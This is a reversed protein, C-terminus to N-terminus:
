QTPLQIKAIEAQILKMRSRQFKKQEEPKKYQMSLIASFFREQQDLTPDTRSVTKLDSWKTRVRECLQAAKERRPTRWSEMKPQIIQLAQVYSNLLEEYNRMRHAVESELEEVDTTLTQFRTLEDDIQQRLDPNM